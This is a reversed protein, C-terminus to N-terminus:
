VARRSCRRRRRPSGPSRPRSTRRSVAARARRAAGGPPDRPWRRDTARCARHAPARGPTPGTRARAPASRGAARPAPARGRSGPGRRAARRPAFLRRAARARPPALPSRQQSLQLARERALEEGAALPEADVALRREGREGARELRHVQDARPEDARLEKARECEAEGEVHGRSRGVEAVVAGPEAVIELAELRRAREGIQGVNRAELPREVARAM